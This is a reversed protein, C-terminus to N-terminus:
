SSEHPARSMGGKRVSSEAETSVYWDQIVQLGAGWFIQAMDSWTRADQHTFQVIQLGNPSMHDTMAKYAEIMASKFPQGDGRIALSRRSDWIWQAFPGPPNKRLWAIFYETIEDYNISDAYPPDTIWIDATVSVDRAMATTVTGKRVSTMSPKGVTFNTLLPMTARAGYNWFTNFAQNYFVHNVVDGPSKETKNRTMWQTLKSVFDLSRCFAVELAARVEPDSVAAIQERLLALTLLHRPSFLQHWYAWGRERILQSTNYGSTIEMDPVFGSRQWQSFNQSVIERVKTERAFDEESPAALWTKPRTKGKALDAADMWQIAYLREQYIDGPRPEFDSKEWRRLANQNNGEDDQGDGRIEGIEAGLQDGLMTHVLRGNQITGHSADQMEEDSSVTVIEIDYRMRQHDPILRAIVNRQRSLVWSPAMPVMWETRPCKAEICFLFVKARNGDFDHEIGLECIFRDIDSSIRRQEALMRQHEDPTAGIMHFAGWTLM